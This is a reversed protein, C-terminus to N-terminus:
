SNPSIGCELVHRLVSRRVLCDSRSRRCDANESNMAGRYGSPDTCVMQRMKESWKFSTSLIWRIKLYTAPAVSSFAQGIHRNHAERCARRDSFGRVILASRQRLELRARVSGHSPSLLARVHNRKTSRVFQGRDVAALRKGWPKAQSTSNQGLRTMSRGALYSATIHYQVRNM